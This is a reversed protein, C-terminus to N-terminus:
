FPSEEDQAPKPAAEGTEVVLRLDPQTDKNKNENAFVLIKRGDELKGTYLAKSGPKGKWLAGFKELAVLENREHLQEGARRQDEATSGM